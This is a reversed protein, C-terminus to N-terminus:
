PCPITPSAQPPCCVAVTKDSDMTVTTANQTDKGGDTGDTGTWYGFVFGSSPTASLSVVSGKPVVFSGSSVQPANTGEAYTCWNDSNTITLTVTDPADSAADTPTSAGGTGPPRGGTGAGGSGGSATSGSAGSSGGSQPSGGSSPAGGSEPAGGSSTTGGRSADSGSAGGNGRGSHGGSSLGGDRHANTLEGSSNVETPEACFGGKACVQPVVCDKDLKCQNRCKGDSGCVLADICDSDYSCETKDSFQCVTAGNARV